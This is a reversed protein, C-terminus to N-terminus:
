AGRKRKISGWNQLEVLCDECYYELTKPDEKLCGGCGEFDCGNCRVQCGEHITQDCNACTRTGYDQMTEGCTPCEGIDEAPIPTHGHIM